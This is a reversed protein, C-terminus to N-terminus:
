EISVFNCTSASYSSAAQTTCGQKLVVALKFLPNFLGSLFFYESRVDMGFVKQVLGQLNSPSLLTGLEM